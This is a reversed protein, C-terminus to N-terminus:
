KPEGVIRYAVIDDSEYFKDNYWRWEWSGASEAGNDLWAKGNRFKVEVLVDPDVPCEGGPWPRWGDSVEAIPSHRLAEAEAILAQASTMPCFTVPPNASACDGSCVPCRHSVFGKLVDLLKREMETM